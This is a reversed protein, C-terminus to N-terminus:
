HMNPRGSFVPIIYAFRLKAVGGEEFKYQPVSYGSHKVWVGAWNQQAMPGIIVDAKGPQRGERSANVFGDWYSSWKSDRFDITKLQAYDEVRMKLVLIFGYSHSELKAKQNAREWAASYADWGDRAAFTYFGRGFDGGGRDADITTSNNWGRTSTGHMFYLYKGPEEDEEPPSPTTIPVKLLTSIRRLQMLGLQSDLVDAIQLTVYLSIGVEMATVTQAEQLTTLHGSPDIGNVPNAHCYGYKHLSQPDQTNGEYSDMTQFRGTNPNLYRAHAPLPGVVLALVVLVVLMVAIIRKSM